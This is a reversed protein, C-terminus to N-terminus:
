CYQSARAANFRCLEGDHLIDSADSSNSISAPSSYIESDDYPLFYDEQDDYFQDKYNFQDEAEDGESAYIEDPHLVQDIQSTHVESILCYSISSLM